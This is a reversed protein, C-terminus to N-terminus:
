PAPIVAVPPLEPMDVGVAPFAGRVVCTVTSLVALVSSLRTTVPLPVYRPPDSLVSVGMAAVIEQSVASVCHANVVVGVAAKPCTRVDPEDHCGDPDSANANSRPLFEASPALAM